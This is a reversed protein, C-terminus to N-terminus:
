DKCTPQNCRPILAPASSANRAPIILNTKNDGTFPRYPM